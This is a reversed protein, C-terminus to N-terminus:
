GVEEERSQAPFVSLVDHRLRNLWSGRLATDHCWLYERAEEGIISPTFHDANIHRLADRVGRVGQLAHRNYVARLGWALAVIATDIVRGHHRHHVLVANRVQHYTRGEDWDMREERSRKHLVEISPDYVIQYGRDIMRYSLDLEEECFFLRGDYGGAEVFASRRLAHGVGVFRSVRVPTTVDMHARPYAWAGLDLTRTNFDLAKFAVAGLREDSALRSMAMAIAHPSALVADNDLCVIFDAEGARIGLNRGEPVGVNHGLEILQVEARTAALRRLTSLQGPASGQDVIWVGASDIEQALVSAIADLTDERRNWSLVVVDVTPQM